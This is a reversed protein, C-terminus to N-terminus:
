VRTYLVLLTKPTCFFFSFSCEHNLVYPIFNPGLTLCKRSMKLEPARRRSGATVKDTLRVQQTSHTHSTSLNAPSAKTELM